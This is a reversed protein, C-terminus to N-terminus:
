RRDERVRADDMLGRLIKYPSMDLIVCLAAFRELKCNSGNKEMYSYMQQRIGLRDAVDKQSLGNLDRAKRIEASVDM